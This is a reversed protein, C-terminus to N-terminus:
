FRRLFTRLKSGLTEKEKDTYTNYSSYYSNTYGYGYNFQDRKIGNFVLTFKPFRKASDVDNIFDLEDKLTHGQRIMYVVADATRSIIYADTVLHIPPSDILIDDYSEKLKNILDDLREKELLESPNPQIPGCGLVDLGPIGSPQILKTVDNATEALYDSIGPHESSLNFVGSIKPKRLDMELIITKRSAYALTVALNSSVFSKGESGVSSTFLTVRGSNNNAHLHSLNTRLVRFQEGIVFKGRGETVVIPTTDEQYSLEGLIPVNVADEIQKRNSIRENLSERAYLLGIPAALGLLVAIAYVIGPKPWKAKGAHADDVIESDSVTSAYRLAVSERKELLYSYIKEKSEQERKMATYVRDQEPIKKLDSIIGNNFSQMQSKIALQSAKLAKVKERFAVQLTKIQDNIPDFMPNGAPITALMESRKTQLNTLKEYLAMLSPDSLYASTPPLKSIDDGSAKLTRELGDLIKLQIEADNLAKINAQRIDRFGQGQSTVDTMGQTSKFEEIAKEDISLNRNLSDLRADIFDIAKKADKNKSSMADAKYQAMLENLVDKGREPVEDSTSLNVFPADKNELEVKVKSLQNDTVQDPDSVNINITAGLYGSINNTATLTWTGFTSKVPSGFKYDKDGEDPNSLTFTQSDKIIVTLKAGNGDITGTTKVFSFLVPSRKYLDEKKGNIKTSYNVWLQLDNVVKYMIKKSQMVEIENEVIVPTSIPDLQQDQGSKNIVTGESSTPGKFELTAVIPYTPKSVKLYFFALIVFIIVGLVFLPWHFLYKKVLDGSNDPNTDGAPLTFTTLQTKQKSM